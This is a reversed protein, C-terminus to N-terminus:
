RSRQRLLPLMAALVGDRRVVHHWLAAAIHAVLLGLLAWAAWAHWDTLTDALDPDDAVLAPLPLLGFLSVQVGHASSAAWGLLPLALLMAYLAMHAAMALRHMWPPVGSGFDAMGRTFRLTMRAVLAVMVFLGAQRHVGLLASRLADAEVWERLLVSLAAVVVAAASSWHLALTWAPHRRMPQAPREASRIAVPPRPATTTNM